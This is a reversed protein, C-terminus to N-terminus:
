VSKYDTSAARLHTILQEFDHPVECGFAYSEGDFVFSLEQAHLAQRDIFASKKGYLQDGIIPHGIAALHVRIQHTRGTTPRAEILASDEFYEIVKYVTKAHRVKTAGVKHTADVVSEDFTTMKIRHVSDRGIAFTLTGEKAPHGAVVAMYKKAIERKRFLSGFVTYAHNTRTLVLIGSTEKDLRHVIGPRDIIGVRAIESHNHRVWDALTIATSTKSPAHTLLNAPKYVIMFHDTMAVISVGMTKDIITSAEIVRQEPFQIRISDGPYATVSPKNVLKENLFVRKEEILQQFFSRSYHSFQEAIYRDIRGVAGNNEVVFTIIEGPEIPGNKIM